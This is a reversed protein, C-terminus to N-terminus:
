ATAGTGERRALAAERIQTLTQGPTIADTAIKLHIISPRGSEHAAAFAAPFDETREVTWGLGGFARAYAAFDPNHLDTAIPRDPFEREQHMRITGYSANDCVIVVIPLRYQVATAFEQGNMLFDGDGNLSIVSRAPWLRKMAVAAPLGYGMSASTPAIHGAFSRFRFFRHIWAAYNGAGNCLIADGPLTERLHIIVAGLNVGGPQPTAAEGWALFDEHATRTEARWPIRAPASLRALAAATRAPAANIALFPRYVRGLEEPGAHIHVLRTQPGPIALLSYGQSPIEGLRGGLLVVLDAAKVRAVLRPNAALGLDGAYCPHLADFLPSRRYSTAVPLDFTKAFRAIDACAAESWRSGGLVLIPREASAILDALLAVDDAGPAAEVPVFPPALPAETTETLMDKPLAVVVPGPRGATATAFARSVLEPVRDPDDIETAWKAMPGFVARYDLEQFAERERFRREIQGVFLIMPTSDQQAVHLGASANTAGPGRTVFCIGPEGTAKGHAEAMMAAAGEQRCTTVAIGSDRLADLVPLFSEGPVTFVHRVGNAVLQDVLVRAASRGSGNARM